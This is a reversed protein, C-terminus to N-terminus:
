AAKTVFDYQEKAIALSRRGGEWDGADFAQSARESEYMVSNLIGVKPHGHAILAQANAYLKRALARDARCGWVGALVGLLGVFAIFAIPAWQEITLVQTAAILM